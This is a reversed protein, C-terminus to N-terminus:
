LLLFKSFEGKVGIRGEGIEELPLQLGNNDVAFWKCPGKGMLVAVANEKIPFLSVGIVNETIWGVHWFSENYLKIQPRLIVKKRWGGFIPMHSIPIFNLFMRSSSEKDGSSKVMWEEKLDGVDAKSLKKNNWFRTKNPEDYFNGQMLYGLPKTMDDLIKKVSLDYRIKLPFVNKLSPWEQSLSEEM